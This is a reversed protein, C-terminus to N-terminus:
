FSVRLNLTMQRMSRVSTVQGFNLANVVTSVGGWNPHNLANSVQWTLDVRRNNDDLRFSKRLSLNLQNTGPGPITNRGANGFLGPLPIAFAQTNFYHGTTQGSGSLTPSVGTSDPRESSNSGTGSNNSLNGLLRATLPTGSYLQYSGMLNWGAILTQLFPATSALFRRREGFPLEFNFSTDFRHRQDFSSLAREAAIDRDNQVVVLGGGGVGSADDISKSLTYSSQLRFGRSFRRMVQVRGSHLISNAGSQQYLFIGANSIGLSNQTNGPSVGSPARNPARLIDLRTGRAGSYGIELTYLKLLQTQLNANWQQVYGVRYDPDIAYSNLITISPDVPFGNQLTLPTEPTTLVTQNVAFPPQGILQSAIYPYTSPSYFIGYGARFVYHSSSKPKWAIGIRPGFDNKDGNVLSRPFPGSYPGSQMPFVPAVATFDPAVDLSVMHDYLEYYPQIYEYRVGFNVTLNARARWNDQFFVSFNKSRLYNNSSGYRRSTQYPLGLLFDAFDYGTGALPYGEKDFASTAFGTFDFTGRANPDTDMNRQNFGLDGGIQFSHKNGIKNLGGSFTLTQTRNLAPSGLQLDGYNTFSVTPIGYNIPDNSIGTIGLKGAVDNTFSFPNSSLNRVRNFTIRYNLIFRPQFRHIGGLSVNQSRNTRDTDLGPFIQSSVSDGSRYSYNAFVNDKNSLRTNIRASITESSSILSRQLTYNQVSGPLNPLPIYQLLAASAPDIRSAPIKADAFPTASGSAPDYIVVNQGALPGAHLSTQSFDGSRELETPVTTFISYPNRNRSGSYSVFWMGPQQRRRTSGGSSGWPLPGGIQAGFTNNIQLAQNLEEGTLSYPRANLFSNQYTSYVSGNFRSQRMMGGRGPFGGGMFPGGPGGGRGGFGGGFGGREGGVRIAGPGGQQGAPGDSGQGGPGMMFGGFGMREAMQRIRDRFAPDSWDGADVSASSSGSIVLLDSNDQPSATGETEPGMSGAPNETNNESGSMGNLDIERFPPANGNTRGGPFNSRGGRGQNAPTATRQEAKPKQLVLTLSRSAGDEPHLGEKSLKQFGAMDVELRYAGAPLNGFTFSGDEGSLAEMPPGPAAAFLRVTAAPIPVGKGDVVKGQISSLAQAHTIAPVLLACLVLICCFWRYAKSV